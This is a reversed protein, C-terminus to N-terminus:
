RMCFYQISFSTSVIGSFNLYNMAVDEAEVNKCIMGYELTDLWKDEAFSLAFYEQFYVASIM